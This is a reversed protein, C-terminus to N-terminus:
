EDKPLPKGGGGGVGSGGPFLAEVKFGVAMRIALRLGFCAVLTTFVLPFATRNRMVAYM